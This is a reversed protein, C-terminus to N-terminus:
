DPKSSLKKSSRAFAAQVGHRAPIQDPLATSFSMSPFKPVMPIALQACFRTLPSPGALERRWLSGLYTLFISFLNKSHPLFCSWVFHGIMGAIGSNSPKRASFGILRFFLDLLFLRFDSTGVLFTQILLVTRFERSDDEHNTTGV